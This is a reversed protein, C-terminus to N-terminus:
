PKGPLRAQAGPALVAGVLMCPLTHVLCRSSQPRSCPTPLVERLRHQPLLLSFLTGTPCVSLAPPLAPWHCRPCLPCPQPLPEGRDPQLAVPSPHPLPGLQAAPGQALPLGRPWWLHQRVVYFPGTQAPGLLPLFSPTPPWDSGVMGEGGSPRGGGGGRCGHLSRPDVM